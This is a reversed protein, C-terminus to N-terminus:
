RNSPTQNSPAGMRLHVNSSKQRGQDAADHSVVQSLPMPLHCFDKATEGWSTDRMLSVATSRQTM